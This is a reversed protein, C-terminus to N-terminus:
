KEKCAPTWKYHDNESKSPDFAEDFRVSCETTAPDGVPNQAEPSKAKQECYISVSGKKSTITVARTIDYVFNRPLLDYIKYAEGGSFKMTSGFPLDAQVKNVEIYPTSGDNGFASFSVGMLAVCLVIVKM